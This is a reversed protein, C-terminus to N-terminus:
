KYIFAITTSHLARISALLDARGKGMNEGESHGTFALDLYFHM